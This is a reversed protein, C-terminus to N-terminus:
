TKPMSFPETPFPLSQKNKDQVKPVM